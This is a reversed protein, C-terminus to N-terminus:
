SMLRWADRNLVGSSIRVVTLLLPPLLFGEDKAQRPETPETPETPLPEGWTLTEGGNGPGGMEMAWNSWGCDAEGSKWDEPELRHGGAPSM